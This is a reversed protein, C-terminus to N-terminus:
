RNTNASGASTAAPAVNTLVGSLRVGVEIPQGQATWEHMGGPYVYVKEKPIGLSDRLTIAAHQSDECDGGNCYFVIQEAMLCVQVVNSLYNEPFYHYFHYAGPIHGAAYDEDKRADIFIVGDRDRRPDQFFESVRNSDALQLGEAHLRAAFLEAPSHTNTEAVRTANSETVSPLPDAQTAPFYNTGLKLGRPSLGNAAFALVAGIAAVLM